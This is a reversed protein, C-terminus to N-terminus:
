QNKKRKDCAEPVCVWWDMDFARVKIVVEGPEAAVISNRWVLLDKNRLKPNKLEVRAALKIYQEIQNLSM